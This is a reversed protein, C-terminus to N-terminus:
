NRGGRWRFGHGRGRPAITSDERHVMERFLTHLRIQQEENCAAKMKLYYGITLNKLEEHKKGIEHSINHLRVSDPKERALQDVMERRLIELDYAIAHTERNYTRNIERFEQLQFQNLGLQERFFRANQETKLGEGGPTVAAEEKETKVTHYIFSAITAANLAFLIIVLWLLLRYKAQTIM